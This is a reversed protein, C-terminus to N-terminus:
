QQMNKTTKVFYTWGSDSNKTLIDAIEQAREKNELEWIESHSDILLVDQYGEGVKMRKVIAYSETRKSM